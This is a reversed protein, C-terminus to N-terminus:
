NHKVKNGNETLLLPPWEPGDQLADTDWSKRGTVREIVRIDAAIIAEGSKFPPPDQLM